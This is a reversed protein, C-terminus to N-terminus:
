HWVSTSFNCVQRHWVSTSFNCVQRDRQTFCNQIIVDMINLPNKGLFMIAFSQVEQTISYVRSIDHHRWWISVNETNSARQAPFESTVPSNGACLGTVRLKSTKKSRCKVIDCGHYLHSGSLSLHLKDAKKLVSSMPTWITWILRKIM